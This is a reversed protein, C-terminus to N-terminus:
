SMPRFTCKAGFAGSGQYQKSRNLVQYIAENYIYRCDNQARKEIKEKKDFFLAFHDIVHTSM